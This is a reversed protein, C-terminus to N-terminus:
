AMHTNKYKRYAPGTYFVRKAPKFGSLGHWQKPVMIRFMFVEAIHVLKLTDIVKFGYHLRARLSANNRSGTDAYVVRVDPFFRHLLTDTFTSYMRRGRSRPSVYVDREWLAGEDIPFQYGIEDIFRSRGPLVMWTTAVTKGDQKFEYFRLGQAFRAKLRAEKFFKRGTSQYLALIASDYAAYEVSEFEPHDPPLDSVIKRLIVSHDYVWLRELTSRWRRIVTNNKRLVNAVLLNLM